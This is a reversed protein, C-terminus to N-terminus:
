VIIDQPTPGFKKILGQRNTLLKDYIRTSREVRASLDNDSMVSMFHDNPRHEPAYPVLFYFTAILVFGVLLTYRPHRQWVGPM